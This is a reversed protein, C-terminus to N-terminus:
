KKKASLRPLVLAAAIILGVAVVVPMWRGVNGTILTLISTNKKVPKEGEGLDFVTGVDFIFDREQRMEAQGSQGLWFAEGAIRVRGTINKPVSSPVSITITADKALTYGHNGEGYRNPLALGVVGEPVNVIEEHLAESPEVYLNEAITIVDEGVTYDEGHLPPEIVVTWGEPAEAVRFIIHTIRNGDVNYSYVHGAVDEGGPVVSLQSSSQASGWSYAPTDAQVLAGLPWALLAALGALTLALTRIWVSTKM